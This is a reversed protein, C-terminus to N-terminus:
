VAGGHCQKDHECTECYSAGDGQYEACVDRPEPKWTNLDCVCGTPKMVPFFDHNPHVNGCQRCIDTAVRSM